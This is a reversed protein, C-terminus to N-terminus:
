YEDPYDELDDQDFLEDRQILVDRPADIGIRVADRHAEVVTVTISDGIAIKQGPRRTLVLM